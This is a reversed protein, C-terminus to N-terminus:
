PRRTRFTISYRLEKPASVAHQWGWRAAGRMVYASRPALDIAHATRERPRPPWPRLRLRAHGQLSVGVIHEFEAVDRHWGLPAGPQYEAVIAQAIEPDPLGAWAAVQARLPELFQPLPPAPQLEHRSFDYRGGFSVIRRRAHWERYQAPAFPLARIQLLLAEEQAASLFEPAYRFGEPWAAPAAFLERQNVRSTHRPFIPRAARARSYKKKDLLPM